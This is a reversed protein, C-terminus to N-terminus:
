YKERGTINNARGANRIQQTYGSDEIKIPDQKYSRLTDGVKYIDRKEEDSVEQQVQRIKSMVEEYTIPAVNGSRRVV